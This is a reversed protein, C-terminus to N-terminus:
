FLVEAKELAFIAEADAFLQQQSSHALSIYAVTDQLQNPEDMRTGATKTMYHERYSPFKNLETPNFESIVRPRWNQLNLLMAHQTGASALPPEPNKGLLLDALYEVQNCHYVYKVLTNITGYFGSIRGNVEILCPGAATLFLESHALGNQFQIANLVQIIYEICSQAEDSRHDVLEEYRYIIKNNYFIKKYRFVACATHKGNVSVTDVFYETGQLQEQILIENVKGMMVTQGLLDEVSKKVEAFTHATTVGESGASYLPKIVVPLLATIAKQQTQIDALSHILFQRVAKLGANRCAEQMHYKDTRIISDGSNAFQPFFKRAINDAKKIAKGEHGYIFGKIDYEQLKQPLDAIQEPTLCEIMKAFSIGQLRNAKWVPDSWDNVILAIPELGRNRLGQCLVQSSVYPDVIICAPIKNM